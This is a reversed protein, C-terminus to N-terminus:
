RQTWCVCVCLQAIDTPAPSTVEYIPSNFHFSMASFLLYVTSRAVCITPTTFDSDRDLELDLELDTTYSKQRRLGPLM